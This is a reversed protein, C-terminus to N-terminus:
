RTESDEHPEHTEVYEIIKLIEDSDIGKERLKRSLNVIEKGTM